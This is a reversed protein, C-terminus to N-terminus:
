RCNTLLLIRWCTPQPSKQPSGTTLPPPPAAALADLYTGQGSGSAWERASEISTGENWENFTTILQWQAGSANMDAINAVWDSMNRPLCGLGPICPLKEYYPRYGPSITFSQTVGDLTVPSERTMPNYGHWADPQSACHSWGDVAAMNLYFRHLPDAALWNAVTSCNGVDPKNYVFLVPRGEFTLFSPDSAYNTYVYNLDSEIQAVTLQEYASLEFYITWKFPTGHAASLLLPFRQDEPSGPGWWSSIGATIGAHLMSGIHSSIVQPNTSSYEGLSPTYQSGYVRNQTWHEPYWPYYFAARIPTIASSSTPATLALAPLPVLLVLAFSILVQRVRRM